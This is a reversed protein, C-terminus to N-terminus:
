ESQQPWSIMIIGDAGLTMMEFRPEIGTVMVVM